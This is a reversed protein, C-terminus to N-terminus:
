MARQAEQTGEYERHTSGGWNDVVTNLLLMKKEQDAADFYYLGNPIMQFRIDHNTLMMRFFNGSESDFSVQYKMKVRSM